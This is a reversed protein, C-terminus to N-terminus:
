ATSRRVAVFPGVAPPARCPNARERRHDSPSTPTSAPAVATALHAPAVIPRDPPAGPTAMEVACALCACAPAPVADGASAREDGREGRPADHVHGCSCAVVGPAADAVAVAHHDHTHLGPLLTRVAIALLCALTGLWTPLHPQNQRPSTV